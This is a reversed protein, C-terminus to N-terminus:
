FLREGLGLDSSLIGDLQLDSVYGANAPPQLAQMSPATQAPSQTNGTLGAMLNPIQAMMPAPGADQIGYQEMTKNVADTRGPSNYNIGSTQLFQKTAHSNVFDNVAKNYKHAMPTISEWTRKGAQVQGARGEGTNWGTAATAYDQGKGLNRQYYRALVDLQTAPDATHQVGYEKALIPTIQLGGIDNAAGPGSNTNFRSEIGYNALMYPIVDAPLGYKAAAAQVQPLLTTMRQQYQQNAAWEGAWDRAM